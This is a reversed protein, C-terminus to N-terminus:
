KIPIKRIRFKRSDIVVITNELNKNKYKKVFAKLVKLLDETIRGKYRILILGYRTTKPINALKTFDLDNTLIIRKLKLAESIVVSDPTQILDQEQATKLDIQLSRLFDNVLKPVCEDSLLKM